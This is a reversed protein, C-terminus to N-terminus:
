TLNTGPFWRWGRPWEGSLRFPRHLRRGENRRQRQQECRRIFVLFKLQLPRETPEANGGIRMSSSSNEIMRELISRQVQWLSTTAAFAPVWHTHPFFISTERRRPFSLIKHGRVNM